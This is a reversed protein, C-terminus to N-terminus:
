RWVFFYFLGGVGAILALLIMWVISTFRWNRDEPPAPGLGKQEEGRLFPIWSNQYNTTFFFDSHRFGPHEIQVVKGSDTDKFGAYGSQGADSVVWAVIRAWFDQKGYDNLVRVVLGNDIFTKWPYDQAVIAGCFIIRDFRLRYIRIVRAVLYTGFSHAIISPICNDNRSCVMEYERMLWDVKKRRSGHWLLHRASFVDYDLTEAHFGADALERAVDDMWPAVTKIGHLIMVVPKREPGPGIGSAAEKLLGILLQGTMVGKTMLEVTGDSQANGTVSLASFGATLLRAVECAQDTAGEDRWKDRLQLLTKQNALGGRILAMADDVISAVIVEDETSM